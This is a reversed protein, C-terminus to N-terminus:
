RSPRVAGHRRVLHDVEQQLAVQERLAAHRAPLAARKLEAWSPRVPEAWSPRVPEACPPGVYPGVVAYPPEECRLAEGPEGSPGECPGEHPSAAHPAAM